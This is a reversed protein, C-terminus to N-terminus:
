TTRLAAARRVERDVAGRQRTQDMEQIHREEDQAMEQDHQQRDQEMGLKAEMAKIRGEM